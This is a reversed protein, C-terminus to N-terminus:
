DRRPRTAKAAALAPRRQPHGRPRDDDRPLAMVAAGMAASCLTILLGCFLLILPVLPDEENAVLTRLGGTDLALFGALVMVAVVAGIAWNIALLRLLPNRALRRVNSFPARGDMPSIDHQQKVSLSRDGPRIKSWRTADTVLRM